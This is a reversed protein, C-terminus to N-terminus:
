KAWRKRSIDAQVWHGHAVADYINDSRTGYSLNDKSPNTRCGDRHRVEQGSPCPGIFAGAVLSHITRTNGRGLCVTPYGNSSIGPKLFKPVSKRLSIVRGESSILYVGDWGAVTKWEETCLRM